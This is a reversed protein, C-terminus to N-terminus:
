RQLHMFCIYKFINTIRQHYIYAHLSISVYESQSEESKEVVANGSPEDPKETQEDAAEAQAQSSEAENETRAVGQEAILVELKKRLNEQHRDRLRARAM